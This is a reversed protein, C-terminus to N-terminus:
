AARGAQRGVWEKKAKILPVRAEYPKAMQEQCVKLIEALVADTENWVRDNAFRIVRVKTEGLIETRRADYEKQYEHSPGDLEIVLSAQPCYFDAIFGRLQSQRRFKFGGLQRRRLREWLHCEAPTANTRLSRAHSVFVGLM